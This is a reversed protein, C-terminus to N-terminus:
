PQSEAVLEFSASRDDVSAPHNTSSLHRSRWFVYLVPYLIL